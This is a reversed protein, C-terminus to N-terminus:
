QAMWTWADLADYRVHPHVYRRRNRKWIGHIRALFASRDPMDPMPSPNGVQARWQNHYVNARWDRILTMVSPPVSLECRSLIAELAKRQDRWFAKDGCADACRDFLEDLARRQQATLVSGNAREILNAADRLGSLKGEAYVTAADVIAMSSERATM